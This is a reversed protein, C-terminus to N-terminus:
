KPLDSIKYHKSIDVARQEHRKILQDFRLNFNKGRSMIFDALL